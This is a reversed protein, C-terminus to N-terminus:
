FLFGQLKVGRNSPTAPPAPVPLGNAPAHRKESSEAGGRELFEGAHIRDLLGNPRPEHQTYKPVRGRLQNQIDGWRRGFIPEARKGERVAQRYADWTKPSRFRCHIMMHCRYCLGWGGIHDGYPASYDESHPEVFGKDQGCADCCTPRHRRGAKYEDMLWYYATDRERSSFGNYPNGM